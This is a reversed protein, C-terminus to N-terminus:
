RVRSRRPRTSLRTALLGIASLGAMMPVGAGCFAGNSDNPQSGGNPQPAPDPLPTPNPPLPLPILAPVIDVTVSRAPFCLGSLEIKALGETAPKAIVEFRGKADTIFTSVEPATQDHSSVTGNDTTVTFPRRAGVAGPGEGLFLGSGSHRFQFLVTVDNALTAKQHSAVATIQDIWPDVLIEGGGPEVGDGLGAGGNPRKPGTVDGWWNGRADIVATSGVGQVIGSKGDNNNCIINGAIVHSADPALGNLFIGPLLGSGTLLSNRISVRGVMGGPDRPEVYVGAGDMTDVSTIRNM